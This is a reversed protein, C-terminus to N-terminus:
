YIQGHFENQWRELGWGFCSRLSKSISKYMYDYDEKKM